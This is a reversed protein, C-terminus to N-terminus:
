GSVSTLARAVYPINERNLGAVNIRGNAPMYISYSRRLVSVQDESLNLRSFMGNQGTINGLGDNAGYQALATDLNKRLFTIRSRMEDLERQWSTRLTQDELVTTVLAAGHAPPMSYSQRAIRAMNSEVAEAQKGTPSKIILAGVRERYLGFNKSCSYSLLVEPLNTFLKRTLGADEELGDGFGQYAMDVFPLLGKQKILSILAEWVEAPVDAGTPNHCCAHLLVIDGAEAQELSQLMATTDVQGTKPCYYNYSQAHLGAAELIPVHNAWTPNSVWVTTSPTSTAVLDFGMRLAGCGGPTQLVSLKGELQDSLDTGLALNRCARTFGPWGAHSIYSKSAERQALRIYAEQVAEMIPTRGDAQRYVGVGLDVKEVKQDAEYLTALGLIPDSPLIPLSSFIPSKYKQSIYNRLNCFPHSYAIITM